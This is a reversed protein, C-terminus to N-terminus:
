ATERRYYNLLGGMRERRIVAGPGAFDAANGAVLANGLGQHNREQNYHARYESVARRLHREGIPVVKDLCESKNSLIFREAFANLNLSRAPLRV